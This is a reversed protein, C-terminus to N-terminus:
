EPLPNDSNWIDRALKWSGDSQRQYIHIGKGTEQITEGGEALTMTSTMSYRQLAWDGSVQIEEVSGAMDFTGLSLFDRVWSLVEEKGFLARYNPPMWVIDETFITSLGEMDGDNIFAIEKEIMEKIAAVDAETSPAEETVPEVQEETPPACAPLLMFSFCVVGALIFLYKM